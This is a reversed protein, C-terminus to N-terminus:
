TTERRWYWAMPESSGHERCATDEMALRIAVVLRNGAAIREIARGQLSAVGYAKWIRECVDKLGTEISHLRVAVDKHEAVSLRSPKRGSYLTSSPIINSAEESDPKAWGYYPTKPADHREAFFANDLHNKLHLFPGFPGGSLRLMARMPRSSKPYHRQLFFLLDQIRFHLDKLQQGVELHEAESFGKFRKVM